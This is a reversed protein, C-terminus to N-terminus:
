EVCMCSGVNLRLCVSLCVFLCVCVCVCACAPVKDFTFDHEKAAAKGMYNAETPATLSLM